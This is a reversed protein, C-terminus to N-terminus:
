DDSFFVLMMAQKHNTPHNVLQAIVPDTDIKVAVFNQGTMDHGMDDLWTSEPLQEAFPNAPNPFDHGAEVFRWSQNNPFSDTIHLIAKRLAVIDFTSVNGSNNVDAALLKYPSDLLLTGLIHSRLLVLDFTTVGNLLGDAKVPRLECSM